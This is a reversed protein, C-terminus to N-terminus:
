KEKEEKKPYFQNDIDRYLLEEFSRRLLTAKTMTIAARYARWISRDYSNPDDYKQYYRDTIARNFHREDGYFCGTKYMLYPKYESTLHRVVILTDRRSGISTVIMLNQTDILEQGLLRFRRIHANMFDTDTFFCMQASAETLVAEYLIASQFSCDNLLCDGFSVYSLDAEFFSIDELLYGSFNARQGSKGGTKLWEKHEGIRADVEPQSMTKRNSILCASM